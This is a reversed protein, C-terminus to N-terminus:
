PGQRHRDGGQGQAVGTGGMHEARYRVSFQIGFDIGLGVFLPIFAVSIANFRGFIFLGMAATCVLGLFTTLLISVILRTSRVALWLMLIIAGVALSAILGARNALSGFEEDQLPIPGTLRVRVGHAPDLQLAKATDRIAQGTAQGPELRAFDLSPAVLIVHRLERPDPAGNSILTRWSFFTPKGAQISELADALRHIPKHVDELSAQGLSVGQLATSLAGMLGRLSPDAAIPGLFPQAQILQAMTSQVDKLPLYLLGEHDWFPGADPRRVEHFLQPQAILKAALAAAGQEALEPTQGDVVVVVQSGSPPFARNYDAERIRWPLKPSLLAATDTSMAFHGVAYRATTVGLAIALVLVIWAHRACLAVLRGILSPRAIVVGDAGGSRRFQLQEHRAGSGVERPNFM